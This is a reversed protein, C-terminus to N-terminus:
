NPPPCEKVKEITVKVADLRDFPCDAPLRVAKSIGEDEIMTVVETEFEIRKPPVSVIRWSYGFPNSSWREMNTGSWVFHGKERTDCELVTGPELVREILRALPLYEENDKSM